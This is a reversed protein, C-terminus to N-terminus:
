KTAPKVTSMTYICMGFIIASAVAYHYWQLKFGGEQPAETPNADDRTAAQTVAQSMEPMALTTRESACALSPALLLFILLLIMAKKM